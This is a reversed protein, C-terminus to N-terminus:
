CLRVEQEPLDAAQQEMDHMDESLVHWSGDCYNASVVKQNLLEEATVEQAYESEGPHGKVSQGALLLKAKEPTLCVFGGPTMMDFYADPHQEILERVTVTGNTGPAASELMPYEGEGLGKDTINWLVHVMEDKHSVNQEALWQDSVLQLPNKFRLLYETDDPNCCNTLEEYVLKVAAIEAAQEILSAAPQKRLQQIYSRYNVDIRERLKKELKKENRDM